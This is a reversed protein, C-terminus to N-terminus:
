KAKIFKGTISRNDVQLNYYYIGAPLNGFTNLLVVNTNYLKKRAVIIGKNNILTFLIEKGKTFSIVSRNTVPNPFVTSEYNIHEIDNINVPNSLNYLAFDRSPTGYNSYIWIENGPMLFAGLDGIDLIQTGTSDTFSISDLHDPWNIGDASVAKGFKDQLHKAYLLYKGDKKVVIPDHWGQYKEEFDTFNLGDVSTTIFLSGPDQSEVTNGSFIGTVGGTNNFFYTGHGALKFISQPDYPFIDIRIGEDNFQSGNSSIASRIYYKPPGNFIESAVYYMRYTSSDIKLVSPAGVYWLRNAPNTSTDSTIATGQFTWDIGDPSDAYKIHASDSNNMNYYMRYGNGFSIFESMQISGPNWIPDGEHEGYVLKNKIWVETYQSFLSFSPVLLILLTIIRKMLNSKTIKFDVIVPIFHKVDDGVGMFLLLGFGFM